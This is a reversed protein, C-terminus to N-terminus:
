GAGARGAPPAAFLAPHARSWGLYDACARAPSFAPRWGTAGLRDIAIAARPRPDPPRHTIAAPDASRRWAFGPFAETLRACWAAIHGGWDADSSINYVREAPAPLDLLHILGAAVDRVYVWPYAPLDEPLVVSRGALAAGALQWPLSLTDRRGTAHEWPGFAAGIRAAVVDMSWLEGLRLASRELAFKSVGYLSNPLCPTRDEAMPGPAYVSDGYVAVSSPAVVRRVGADRAARLQAIFGLLNVEFVAEPEAAEREPGSTIAAFPFMRDVDHRRLCAAFGAADRVDGPAVTLRGPLRSLTAIAAPPPDDLATLVVHEGRALLAEALALGIFGTGGSILVSV